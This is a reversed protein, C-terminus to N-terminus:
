QLAKSDIWNKKLMVDIALMIQRPSFKKKGENWDYVKSVVDDRSKPSEHEVVWHVTSLLELGIATEFGDILREVKGINKHTGERGKLLKKADEIAGPILRMERGIDKRNSKYGTIFYGDIEQLTKNLNTAYPGYEGKKLIIKSLSPEGRFKMFYILKHIEPLTVFPDFSKRAYRYMLRVLVARGINMSPVSNKRLDLSSSKINDPHYIVVSLSSFECLSDEIRKRVDNWDLGGLGSGLPPIAISKINMKKIIRQLDKLGDDIDSIRSKGKWHRKTPFNIVYQPNTIQDLKYVFMKGPRVEGNKCAKAYADFNDPFAKKFQLAVGRGMVGVCNVTNVLADADESLINGTKHKFM